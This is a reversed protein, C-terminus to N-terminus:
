SSVEIGPHPTPTPQFTMGVRRCLGSTGATHSISPTRRRLQRVCSTSGNRRCCANAMGRVRRQRANSYVQSSLIFDGFRDTSAVTTRMGLPDFLRDRPFNAYAEDGLVKKMAYVALLTDYNEYDWHTGPKRILGRDRAGDASSEGAWYSLGSGTVYERGWSDVPYLGSSMQLVNRLTIAM